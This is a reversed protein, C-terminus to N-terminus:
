QGFGADSRTEFDTPLGIWEAGAAVDQLRCVSQIVDEARGVWSKGRKLRSGKVKQIGSHLPHEKDTHIQLYARARCYQLRHEATPCDLLYRMARTSTDRTCGLIIRMAANQIIDLREIQTQSLTLIALAYEVVAVVLGQYLLFLLRQECQAAAMVKMAALGKGARIIVHDVHEKFSLSRYFFCM